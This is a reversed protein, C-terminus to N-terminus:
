FQGQQVIPKSPMPAPQAKQAKPASPRKASKSPSPTRKKEPEAEDSSGARRELDEMRRKLKKGALMTLALTKLSRSMPVLCVTIESPLATRYGGASLSTPSRPGTRTPTPLAASPAAPATHPTTDQ